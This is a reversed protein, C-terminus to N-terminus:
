LRLVTHCDTTWQPKDHLGMQVRSAQHAPQESHATTTRHRTSTPTTPITICVMTPMCTYGRRQSDHSQGRQQRRTTTTNHWDHRHNNIYDQFPYQEHIQWRPHNHYRWNTCRHSIRIIGTTTTTHRTAGTTQRAMPTSPDQTVTVRCQKAM